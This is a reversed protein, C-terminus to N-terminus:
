IDKFDLGAATLAAGLIRMAKPGRSRGDGRCRSLDLFRRGDGIM